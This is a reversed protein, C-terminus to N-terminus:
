PARPILRRLRQQDDPGIEGLVILLVAYGLVLAPLGVLTPMAGDITLALLGVIVSAAGTTIISRWPVDFAFIRLASALGGSLAVLAGALAAGAAGAMGLTPVLVACLLATTLLGAGSAAAAHLPRGIGALLSAILASLAFASMAPSLLTTPAAAADYASGYFLRVLDDATSALLAALPAVILLGYRLADRALRQAEQSTGAAARAVAPLLIVALGSILYWPIRAINQAATYYGAAAPDPVLSKVFLLDVNLYGIAFAALLLLPAAYSVIPGMPLLHARGIRHAGGVALGVLPAVIIGLIAGPLALALGLGVVLAARAGSYVALMLAQRLYRGRGGNFGWMLSFLAYPLLALAGLQIPVVLRGDGMLNALTEASIFMTACLVCGAGIQVVGGTLLLDASPAEREATYKAIAQATASTQLSNILTVLGIVVGFLGYDAPGLTRGLTVHIIYGSVVLLGSAVTIAITGGALQPRSNPSPVGATGLDLSM